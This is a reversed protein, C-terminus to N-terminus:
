PSRRLFGGPNLTGEYEREGDPLFEDNHNALFARLAHVSGWKEIHTRCVILYQRPTVFKSYIDLEKTVHRDDFVDSDLIVMCSHTGISERVFPLLEESVSDGLLYTIRPHAARAEDWKSDISLIRGIGLTAMFDALFLTTGGTSTGTEILYDPRCESLIEQYSWIDM